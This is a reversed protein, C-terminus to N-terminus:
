ICTHLKNRRHQNHIKSIIHCKDHKINKQAIAQYLETMINLIKQTAKNNVVGKSIFVIRTEM